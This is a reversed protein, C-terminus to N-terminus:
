TESKGVKKFRPVVQGDKTITELFMKLPRVWTGGEGYLSRYVVVEELTESHRGVSLIRYCMGKYHEYIEGLELSKAADSLPQLIKSQQM